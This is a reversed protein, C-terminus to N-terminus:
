HFSLFLNDIFASLIDILEFTNQRPFAPIRLRFQDDRFSALLVSIRKAFRNLLFTRPRGIKNVSRIPSWETRNGNSIGPRERGAKFVTSNKIHQIRPCTLQM